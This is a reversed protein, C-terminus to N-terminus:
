ANEQFFRRIKPTVFRSILIGNRLVELLEPSCDHRHKSITPDNIDAIKSELYNIDVIVAKAYNVMSRKKIFSHEGGELVVTKDFEDGAKYSTFNVALSKPPIGQPKTILVFLHSDEPTPIPLHICNCITLSM